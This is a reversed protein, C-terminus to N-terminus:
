SSAPEVAPASRGSRGRATLRALQWGVAYLAVAVALATAGDIVLARSGYQLAAGAGAPLDDRGLARVAGVVGATTAVAAVAALVAARVRPRLRQEAPVPQPRTTRWWHVAWGALVALGLVTGALDVAASRASGFVGGLADWALHTAAGMAVSPVAWALAAARGRTPRPPRLRGAASPPLAAVLPARLLLVFVALLVLGDAPGAM